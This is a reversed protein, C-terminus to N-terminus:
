KKGNFEKNCAHHWWWGDIMKCGGQPFVIKGCLRCQYGNSGPTKDSECIEKLEKIRQDFNQVQRAARAITNAYGQISM